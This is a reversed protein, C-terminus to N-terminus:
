TKHIALCLLSFYTKIAELTPLSVDGHALLVLDNHLELVARNAKIPSKLSSPRWMEIVNYLCIGHSMESYKSGASQLLARPNWIKGSLFFSTELANMFMPHESHVLWLVLWILTTKYMHKKYLLGACSRFLRLSPRPSTKSLVFHLSKKNM